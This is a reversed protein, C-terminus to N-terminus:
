RTEWFRDDCMHSPERKTPSWTAPSQKPALLFGYFPSFVLWVLILSILDGWKWMWSMLAASCPESRVTCDVSSTMDILRRALEHLRTLLRSDFLRLNWLKCPRRLLESWDGCIQSSRRGSPILVRIATATALPSYDVLARYRAYVLSACHLAM